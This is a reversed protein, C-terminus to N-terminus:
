DRQRLKLRPSAVLSLAQLTTPWSPIRSTVDRTGLLAFSHSPTFRWVGLHIGRRPTPTGISKQIKLPFNYPEFGMMEFPEKYWQFVISVYINLIPKCSGNPYKFCLSHGFSLGHTFNTTQSKVVLLWYDVWNGWTYTAHLMGNSLNRHPSCSRKLCWRSQLNVCLTILGWLWLFGM